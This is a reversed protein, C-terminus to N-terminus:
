ELLVVIGDARGNFGVDRLCIQGTEVQISCSVFGCVADGLVPMHGIVVGPPSVMGELVPMEPVTFM